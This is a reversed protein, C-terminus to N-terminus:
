LGPSPTLADFDLHITVREGKGLITLAGCTVFRSAVARFAPDAFIPARPNAGKHLCALAVIVGIETLNLGRSYLNAPLTISAPDYRDFRLRKM